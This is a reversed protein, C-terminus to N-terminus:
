DNQTNLTFFDCFKNFDAFPKNTHFHYHEATDEDFVFKEDDTVRFSGLAVRGEKKGEIIFLNGKEPKMVWVLHNGMYFEGTNALHEQDVTLGLRTFFAIMEGTMQFYDVEIGDFLAIREDTMRFYGVEVM